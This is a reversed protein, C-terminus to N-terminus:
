RRRRADKIASMTAAKTAILGQMFQQQTIAVGEFQFTQNVVVSGGGGGNPSVTLTEGRGVRAIPVGNLALSNRDTGPNGGIMLSGGSAFGPTGANNGTGFPDLAITPVSGGGFLGGLAKTLPAIVLKQLEIKLLDALITRTVDGFVGGVKIIKGALADAANTIQGFGDVAVSQLAETWKAATTPLSNLYQGLPGQTQQLIDRRKLGQEGNLAVLQRRALEKAQDSAQTDALVEELKAKQIQYDIDLIKLELDRRESATTALALEDQLHSKRFDLAQQDLAAVDHFRQEAEAELVAQRKLSDLTKEKERSAAVDTVIQKYAEATIRHEALNKAAQELKHDLDANTIAKQVDLSEIPLTTPEVYDHSLAKKADLIQLDLQRQQQAVQFEEDASKDRPTKAKKGADGFIQPLTVGTKAGSRGAAAQATAQQLLHIQRIFETKASEITAGGRPDGHRITILSGSDNSALRDFYEKQAARMQATRFGLDRNSDAASNAVSQGLLAGGAAGIIAGPTGGLKAGALGGIIGLALQPNSGLFKIVQGTLTALASSLSLIANANDAVVGAIQASLVMKVAELKHATEEAGQIQSDSLVIGLRQAAEALENLRRSGPALLNDLTSGSRGMLTMEIAARQSRDTVKSLGDAMLRFVDGTNKGKLQDVSIGIASFAKAQAKSGLEAKGMSVTLRRLGVELQDQAVGSQTAAFRFTQLDKTTVGLTRSVEALSGAYELSKKVQEALLGITFAAFLGSVAAKAGSFAGEIEKGKSRAIAAAKNAGAEFEAMGLSLAVRLSGILSDAM